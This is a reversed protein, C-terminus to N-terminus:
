SRYTTPLRSSVRSTSQPTTQVSTAPADVIFRGGAFVEMTQANAVTVGELLCLLAFGCVRPAVAVM